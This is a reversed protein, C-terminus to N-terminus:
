TEVPRYRRILGWCLTSGWHSARVQIGTWAVCWDRGIRSVIGSAEELFYRTLFYNSAQEEWWNAIWPVGRDLSWKKWGEPLLRVTTIHVDCGWGAIGQKVGEFRLRGVARRLLTAQEDICPWRPRARGPLGSGAPAKTAGGCQQQQPELM